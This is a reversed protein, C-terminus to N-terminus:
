KNTNAQEDLDMLQKQIPAEDGENTKTRLLDLEFSQHVADVEATSDARLSDLEASDAMLDASYADASADGALDESVPYVEADQNLSM